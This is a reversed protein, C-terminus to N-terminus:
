VPVNGSLVHFCAIVEAMISFPPIQTQPVAHAYRIGILGNLGKEPTWAESDLNVFERQSSCHHQRSASSSTEIVTTSTSQQAPLLSLRGTRDFTTSASTISPILRRQGEVDRAQANASPLMVHCKTGWGRTPTWTCATFLRPSSMHPWTQHYSLGSFQMWCSDQATTPLLDTLLRTSKIEWSEIM